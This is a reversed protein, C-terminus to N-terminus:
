KEQPIEDMALCSQIKCMINQMESQQNLMEAIAYQCHLIRQILFVLTVTSITGFPKSIIIFLCLFSFCAKNLRM